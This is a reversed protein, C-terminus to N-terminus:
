RQKAYVTGDDAYEDASIDAGTDTGSASSTACRTRDKYVYKYNQKHILEFMQDGKQDFSFLFDTMMIGFRGTHNTFTSSGLVATNVNNALDAINSTGSAINTNNIYLYSSNTENHSIDINSTGYKTDAPIRNTLMNELNTLKESADTTSYEDQYYLTGTNYTNSGNGTAISKPNFSSGWGVNGCGLDGNNDGDTYKDRIIVVMKGRCPNLNGNWGYNAIYGTYGSICNWVRNSWTTSHSFTSFAQSILSRDDEEHILVFVTETPNESLFTSIRSFAASLTVGTSKDSHYINLNSDTSGPRLDFARCGMSLQEDLTYAQCKYYNSSISSTAADHTGPLSLFNFKVNGPIMAMWNQTRASGKAGFNYKKYYPKCLTGGTIGSQTTIYDNTENSGVSTGSSKTYYKGDSCRVTITFGATQKVPLVYFRVIPQTANIQSVRVVESQTSYSYGTGDDGSITAAKTSMNYRMRGAISVQSNAYLAVSEVEGGDFGSLDVDVVSCIHGFTFSANAGGGTTTAVAAMYPGMVGSNEVNESYKQETYIMTTVTTGNWGLVADAPYFAYFTGESGGGDTTFSAKGTKAEFLCKAGDIKGESPQYTYMLTGDSISIKDSTAWSAFAGDSMTSRTAPADSQSMTGDLNEVPLIELADGIRATFGSAEGETAAQAPQPQAPQENDAFDDNSCASMVLSAVAMM